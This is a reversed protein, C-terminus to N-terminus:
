KAKIESVRSIKKSKVKTQDIANAPKQAPATAGRVALNEALSVTEAARVQNKQGKQGMKDEANVSKVVAAVQKTPTQITPKNMLNRPTKPRKNKVAETVGLNKKVAKM